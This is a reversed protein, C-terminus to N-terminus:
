GPDGTDSRGWQAWPLPESLHFARCQHLSTQLMKAGPQIDRWYARLSSYMKGKVEM